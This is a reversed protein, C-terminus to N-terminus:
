VRARARLPMPIMGSGPWCVGARGIDGGHAERFRGTGTGGPFCAM